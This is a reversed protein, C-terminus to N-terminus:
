SKIEGCDSIVVKVEPKDNEGVKVAEVEKVVEIGKIVKGFVVHKGDLWPTDKCTIFFQSGNTNPGSNAMSLIGEKNHKYVFNEDDFKDGYISKGGTGDGKDFDGGQIMFNKIVRHFTCNKYTLNEGKEGTCLCRFNEATKPVKDKFLEIEIRKPEAEGIKVDLFVKPNQPNITEPVDIPKEKQEKDDYLGQRFVGKSFKKEHELKKKKRNQILNELYDIGSDKVTVLKKLEDLNKQAEDLENMHALAIGNFYYLKPSTGIKMAKSTYELVKDYKEEKNSINAMNTLITLYLEIGEKEEEQHHTCHEVFPLAENFKKLCEEIKQNKFLEVAEAKLNKSKELRENFPMKHIFQETMKLELLEIEFTLTSNAPIKDGQPKDGYGYKPEIVFQAKEGVKMTLVGIEWGRIVHNMGLQFKFPEKSQDFITEGIHGVYNVYAELDEKAQEGKGEILIKKKVGGDETLNTYEGESM